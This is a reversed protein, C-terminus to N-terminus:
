ASPQDVPRKTGAKRKQDDSYYYYYSYSGGSRRTSLKNLVVGYIKGGTQQLTQLTRRCADTRTRGSDIVVVVGSCHAALIGADAVALTPPSDLILIDSQTKLSALIETMLNSDLIEAPNPPLPGSTIVRLGPVSTPQMISELTPADGLFLSSLGVSNSLGFLKHIYPRRLDTDLLIVRRGAQAMIVALNAATTTKGEGPTSSTVLLAGSPNEIGTFRLNTRFVRYAEAIPSRPHRLTILNDSPDHIGAIRTIAGLAPVNLIKQVDDPAKVTDDLYELLLIAGGSLVIGALAAFLVNQPVNPSIPTTPVQAPALITVFLNSGSNLLASLSAYNKQWDTIKLQLASIRANLDNLKNSDNELAA